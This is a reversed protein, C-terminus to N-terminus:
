KRPYVIAEIVTKTTTTSLIKKDFESIFTNYAVVVDSTTTTSCYTVGYIHVPITHVTYCEM